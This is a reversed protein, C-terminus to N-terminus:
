GATAGLYERVTWAKSVLDSIRQAYHHEHSDVGKSARMHEGMAEASFDPLDVIKHLSANSTSSASTRRTM